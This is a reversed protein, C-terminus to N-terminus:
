SENSKKAILYNLFEKVKTSEDQTNEFGKPLAIGKIIRKEMKPTVDDVILQTLPELFTTINVNLYKSIELLTHLQVKQKGNEINSISVRTLNLYDALLEQKVDAKERAHRILAGLRCYLADQVEPTLLLYHKPHLHM